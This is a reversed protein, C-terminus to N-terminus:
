IKGWYHLPIMLLGGVCIIAGVKGVPTSLNKPTPQTGVIAAGILFLVFGVIVITDFM